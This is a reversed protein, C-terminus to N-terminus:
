LLRELNAFPVFTTEGGGVDIEAGPLRSGTEIQVLGNPLRVVTGSTGAYTGALVRVNSGVTLPSGPDVPNGAQTPMPVVIYPRKASWRSKLQGSVAAERGNVSRLLDFIARCMPREGAGETAIVPFNVDKLRPILSPSVSGVIIGRVQMEVARELGEEDIRAGGVLIGGQTSLDIHKPRIPHRPARVVVNLVGYAERNNGWAAQIYAGITEITVGEGPWIETVTGPVLANLRITHPEAELLIRGRGYGMIRGSIPARATQAGLGGRAALIDGEAVTDGQSIKLYSRAKKVPTELERAVDVIRFDPPALTQAVVHAPEVPDGVRALVEGKQSLHRPIRVITLPNVITYPIFM